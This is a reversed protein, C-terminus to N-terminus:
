FFLFLVVLLWRECLWFQLSVSGFGTMYCRCGLGHSPNAGVPMYLLVLVDKVAVAVLCVGAASQVVPLMSLVSQLPQGELIGAKQRHPIINWVSWYVCQEWKGSVPKRPVSLQSTMIFSGLAQNLFDFCADVAFCAWWIRRVTGFWHQLLHLFARHAVHVLM